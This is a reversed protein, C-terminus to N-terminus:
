QHEYRARKLPRTEETDDNNGDNSAVRTEQTLVGDCWHKLQVQWRLSLPYVTGDSTSVEEPLLTKLAGSMVRCAFQHRKEIDNAPFAITAAHSTEKWFAIIKQSQRPTLGTALCFANSLQSENVSLQGLSKEFTHLFAVPNEAFQNVPSTRKRAIHYSFTTKYSPAKKATKKAEIQNFLLEEIRNMAYHEKCLYISDALAGPFHWQNIQTESESWSSAIITSLNNPFGNKETLQRKMHVLLDTSQPCTNLNSILFNKTFCDSVSLMKKKFFDKAWQHLENKQTKIKEPISQILIQEPPMSRLSMVPSPSLPEAEITPQTKLMLMGAIEFQQQAPTLQHFENQLTAFGQVLPALLEPFFGRIALAAPHHSMQYLDIFDESSQVFSQVAHECRTAVMIQTMKGQDPLNTAFEWTTQFPDGLSEAKAGQCLLYAVTEHQETRIAIRLPSHSTTSEDQIRADPPLLKKICPLSCRKEVALSLLSQGDIMIDNPNAKNIILLSIMAADNNMVALELPHRAGASMDADRSLLLDALALNGTSVALMLPTIGSGAQSSPIGFKDCCQTDLVDTTLLNIDADREILAIAAQLHGGMVAYHLPTMGRRDQADSVMSGKDTLIRLMATNGCSASLMVLDFGDLNVLPLPANRELLAEVISPRHELVAIELPSLGNEDVSDLSAGAELAQDLYVNFEVEHIKKIAYILKEQASSINQFFNGPMTPNNGPTSKRTASAHSSPTM